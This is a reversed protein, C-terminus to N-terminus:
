RRRRRRRSKRRRRRSKRRRRRSKRRRRTRRRRSKRRGGGVQAGLADSERERDREFQTYVEMIGRISVGGVAASRAAAFRLARRMRAASWYIQAGPAAPFDPSGIGDADRWLDILFTLQLQNAEEEDFGGGREERGYIHLRNGARIIEDATLDLQEDHAGVSIAERFMREIFAILSESAGFQQQAWETVDAVRGWQDVAPEGPQWRMNERIDNWMVDEDGNAMICLM